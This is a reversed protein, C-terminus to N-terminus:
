RGFSSTFIVRAENRSSGASIAIGDLETRSNFQNISTDSHRRVIALTHQTSVM